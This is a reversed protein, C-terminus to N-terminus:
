FNFNLEEEEEEYAMDAEQPERDWEALPMELLAREPDRTICVLIEEYHALLRENSPRM